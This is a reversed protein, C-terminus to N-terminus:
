YEVDKDMAWPTLRYTGSEVDYEAEDVLVPLISQLYGARVPVDQLRLYMGAPLVGEDWPSGSAQLLGGSSSFIPDRDSPDPQQYVVIGRGPVTKAFIKKGTSTGSDMLKKVEDQTKQDGARWQREEILSDVQVSVGAFKGSAVLMEYIQQTTKKTAWVRYPMRSNPTRAVWTNVDYILMPDATLVGTELGITWYDTYSAAGTRFCVIYYNTGPTITVGTNMLISVRDSRNKVDNVGLLGYALEVSPIGAAQSFIAVRLNDSPAGVSGIRIELERATWATPSTNRFQQALITGRSWLTVTSGPRELQTNEEIKLYHGKEVTVSPGAAASVIDGPTAEIHTAGATKVWRYTNNAAQGSGSVKIMEGSPFKDLGGVSDMIDDAPDFSITTNTYVVRVDKEKDPTSSCTFYGNNSTSGTVRIQCDRPFYALRAMVDHIGNNKFGITNAILQWGIGHDESSSIDYEELGTLNQYYSWALTEWLGVAVLRAGIDGGDFELVPVPNKLSALYTDRRAEAVEKRTDSLSVIREKAGYIQVSAPDTAWSTQGQVAQGDAATYNYLVSVKNAMREISAGVVVAPRTVTAEVVLGAWVATGDGNRIVIYYNLWNLVDWINPDGGKVDLEARKFGGQASASFFSPVVNLETKITNNSSDYIEVTFAM